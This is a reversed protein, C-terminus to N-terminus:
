MRKIEKIEFLKIPAAFRCVAQMGKHFYAVMVGHTLSIM